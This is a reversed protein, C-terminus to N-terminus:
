LGAPHRVTYGSSSRMETTWRSGGGSSKAASTDFRLGAVTMYAHGPNGYISVWAGPGALGWSMFSSSDLATKLLGAGHLAYSVSGSCDYGSDDWNGHGGGYRYPKKAIENGALIIDQVVQPADAPPTATGDPNVTAKATQATQVFGAGGTAAPDVEAPETAPSEVTPAPKPAAKPAADVSKRLLKADKRTVKGDVSLQASGEWTRVTRYTGNGFAGDVATPFGARTLYDQLVRVDKGHSGRKLVRSGFKGTKADAVAPLAVLALALMTFIAILRGRLL